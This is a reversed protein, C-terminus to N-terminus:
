QNRLLSYSTGLQRRCDKLLLEGALPYGAQLGQLHQRLGGTRPRVVQICPRIDPRENHQGDEPPCRPRLALDGQTECFRERERAFEVGFPTIVDLKRGVLASEIERGPNDILSGFALIGITPAM